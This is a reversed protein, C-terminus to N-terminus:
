NKLIDSTEESKKMDLVFRLAVVSRWVCSTRRYGLRANFLVPCMCAHSFSVCTKKVHPQLTRSLCTYRRTDRGLM